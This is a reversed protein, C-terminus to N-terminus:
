RNPRFERAVVLPGFFNHFTRWQFIGNQKRATLVFGNLEQALMHPLQLSQLRQYDCPM